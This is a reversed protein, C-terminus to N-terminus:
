KVVTGKGNYNVKAQNTGFRQKIHNIFSTNDSTKIVGGTGEKTNWSSIDEVMVGKPQHELGKKPDEANHGSGHMLLIAASQNNNTKLQTNTSGLGNVDIAIFDGGRKNDDGQGGVFNESLEPASSGGTWSNLANDYGSKTKDNEKIYNKVDTVNGIVAVADTKDIKSADFKMKGTVSQDVVVVRTSLGMKAYNANAEAAVQKANIKQAKPNKDPLYVLYVINERGDNDVYLIPNNGFASYPSYYPMKAALPDISLAFLVPDFDYKNYLTQTKNFGVILKIKTDFITNFYQEKPKATNVEEFLGNSLSYSRNYTRYSNVFPNYTKNESLSIYSTDQMLAAVLKNKMEIPMERYGLSYLSAIQTQYSIFDSNNQLQSISKNSQIIKDNLFGAKLLMANLNLNDYKLCLEACDLIFNDSKANIKHEYGKALNILLLGISQKLNLERMAIGSRAAEDTTYSITEISGTGPFSKSALEVNYFIGNENAHRIFIHNPATCIIANSNLRLSFLKFLSTLANCNGYHKEFDM